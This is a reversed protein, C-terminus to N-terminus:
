TFDVIGLGLFGRGTRMSVEEYQQVQTFLREAPMAAEILKWVQVVGGCASSAIDHLAVRRATNKAAAYDHACGQMSHDGDILVLDWHTSALYALVEPSQSSAVLYDFDQMDAYDRLNASDAIDIAAAKRLTGFRKLYEVTIIFTGGHRAGIEAYTEIGLASLHRLYNAFQNPYQWSKLGHGCWPYLGQPYEHLMEDNLGLFPLLCSELWDADRLQEIAVTRLTLVAQRLGNCRPIVAQDM